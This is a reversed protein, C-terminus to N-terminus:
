KQFYATIKSSGTKKQAKSKLDIKAPSPPTKLATADEEKSPMLKPEKSRKDLEINGDQELSRKVGVSDETEKEDKEEVKVKVKVEEEKPTSAKTSKDPKGFFNAISKSSSLPQIFAPSNNRVNGVEKTVPYCELEGEYPRLVSALEPSWPENPDLWKFLAESGNELIVPMRDHLFSLFESSNTTIITYTFLSKDKLDEPHAEDYLGALLMVKQDARRTYHPVKSEKPTKPKLWEYFGQAVIVCRKKSKLSNFMPKGSTLSDDRANITKLTTQYDPMKKSWSPVLGWRMSHIVYNGETKRVVPQYHTPAVNYSPRYLEQNVWNQTELRADAVQHHVEEPTYACVTRGCM